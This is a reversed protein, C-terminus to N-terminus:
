EEWNHYAFVKVEVLHFFDDIGRCQLKVFRGNLIKMCNIVVHESARGPGIYHTCHTMNELAPGVKVDMDRVRQAVFICM